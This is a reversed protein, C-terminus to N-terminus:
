NTIERRVVVTLKRILKAYQKVTKFDGAMSADLMKDLYEKIKEENEGNDITLM